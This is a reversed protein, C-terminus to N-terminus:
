LKGALCSERSTFAGCCCVWNFLNWKIKKSLMWIQIGHPDLLIYTM